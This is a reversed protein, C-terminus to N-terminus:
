NINNEKKKQTKLMKNSLVNKVITNRVNAEKKGSRKLM